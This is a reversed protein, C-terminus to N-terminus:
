NRELIMFYSRAEFIKPIIRSLYVHFIYELIKQIKHFTYSQNLCRIQTLYFFPLTDDYSISKIKFKHAKFISKVKNINHTYGYGKIYSNSVKRKLYFPNEIIIYKCNKNKQIDKFLRDIEEINLYQLLGIFSIINADSSILYISLESFKKILIFKGNKINKKAITLSRESIDIGTYDFDVKYKDILITKYHRADGCGLDLFSFPRQELKLLKKFIHTELLISSRRIKNKMYHKDDVWKNFITRNIEEKM